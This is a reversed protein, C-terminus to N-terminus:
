TWTNTFPLILKTSNRQLKPLDNPTYPQIYFGNIKNSNDLSLYFSYIRREFVAKYAAYSSELGEFKKSLMKGGMSKTESLFKITKELSLEKKMQSSFMSFISDYNGKNYSDEFKTIAAKYNISEIQAYGNVSLGFFIIVLLTKHM